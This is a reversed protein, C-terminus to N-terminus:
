TRHMNQLIEFDRRARDSIGVRAPIGVTNEKPSYDNPGRREAAGNLYCAWHDAARGPSYAIQTGEAIPESCIHCVSAYRALRPYKRRWTESAPKV